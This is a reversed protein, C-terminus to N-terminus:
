GQLGSLRSLLAHINREGDSIYRVACSDQASGESYLVLSEHGKGRGYEVLDKVLRGTSGVGYVGNIHAIRM